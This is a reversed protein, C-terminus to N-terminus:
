SLPKAKRGSADGVLEVDGYSGLLNTLFRRAAPREDDVVVV